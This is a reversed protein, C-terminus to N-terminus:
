DIFYVAQLIVGIMKGFLIAYLFIIFYQKIHLTSIMKPFVNMIELLASTLIGNFVGHFFGVIISSFFPMSISAETFSMWTGILVSILIVISLKQSLNTTPFYTFIIPFITLLTLIAAFIAGILLGSSFGILWELIIV